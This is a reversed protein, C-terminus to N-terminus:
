IEKRLLTDQEDLQYKKFGMKEALRIAKHNRTKTQGILWKTELKQKAIGILLEFAAQMYGQGWFEPFLSGGIFLEKTKHNWHHLACDGIILEPQGTPKIIYIFDCSSIIRQTFQQPTENPLFPNEEFNVTLLPHSYLQYLIDANNITLIELIVKKNSYM